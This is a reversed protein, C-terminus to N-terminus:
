RRLRYHVRGDERGGAGDGSVWECRRLALIPMGTAGLANPSVAGGGPARVASRQRVRQRLCQCIWRVWMPVVRAEVRAGCQVVVRGRDSRVAFLIYMGRSVFFPVRARRVTMCKDFCVQAMRRLGGSWQAFMGTIAVVRVGALSCKRGVYCSGAGLGVLLADLFAMVRGAASLVQGRAWLSRM